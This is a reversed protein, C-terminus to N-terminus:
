YIINVFKTAYHLTPANSCEASLFDHVLDRLGLGQPQRVSLHDEIYQPGRFLDRDGLDRCLSNEALGRDCFDDIVEEVFPERHADPLPARGALSPLLRGEVSEVLPSPENEAVVNERVLEVRDRRVEPEGEQAFHPDRDAFRLGGATDHILDRGGVPPVDFLPQIRFLQDSDGDAGVPDGVEPVADDNRGGM